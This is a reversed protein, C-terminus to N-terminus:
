ENKLKNIYSAEAPISIVFRAGGDDSKELRITGQHAEVLGKVISLGLGIGGPRSQPARYFKDFAHRAEDEKFGPGNDSIELVLSDDIADANVFISTGPPTYQIANHILNLIVQEILGADLKYLPLRENSQFNITHTPSPLFKQIVLHILENLDCWDSKLKLMGSELRSMNLLNEVQRNLRTSAQDIASLLESQNEITLKDRNEKLADVAGLITSLPTRLEHSLSNLLTNYLKIANSKEEQDRAKTEAHRIKISLVANVLAIFFYLLFMLVDETRDIHFTFLPPIFFYNWIVASLVASLLVPLIDFVMAILSVTMLLILAVVRYGIVEKTFFCISTVALVLSISVAYQSIGTLRRILHISKM